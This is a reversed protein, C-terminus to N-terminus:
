LKLWDSDIIAWSLWALNLSYSSSLIQDSYTWPKRTISKNTHKINVHVYFILGLKQFKCFVIKNGSTQTMGLFFSLKFTWDTLSLMQGQCELRIALQELIDGGM